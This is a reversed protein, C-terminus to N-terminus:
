SIAHAFPFRMLKNGTLKMCKKHSRACVCLHFASPMSNGDDLNRSNFPRENCISGPSSLKSNRGREGNKEKDRVSSVIFNRIERPSLADRGFCHLEVRSESVGNVGSSRTKWSVTVDRFWVTNEASFGVSKRPYAM